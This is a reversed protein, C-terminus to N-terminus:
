QLVDEEQHWCEKGTQGKDSYPTMRKSPKLDCASNPLKLAEKITGVEKQVSSEDSM